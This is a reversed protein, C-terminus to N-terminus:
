LTAALVAARLSFSGIRRSAVSSRAPAIRSSSATMAQHSAAQFPLACSLYALSYQKAPKSRKLKIIEQNSGKEAAFESPRRDYPEGRPLCIILDDGDLKYIGLWLDHSEPGQSVIIDINHPSKVTNLKFAAIGSTSNGDPLLLKFQDGEFSVRGPV